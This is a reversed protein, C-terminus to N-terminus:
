FITCCSQSKSSHGDAHVGQANLLNDTNNTEFVKSSKNSETTRKGSFLTPSYHEDFSASGHEFGHEFGHETSIDSKEIM